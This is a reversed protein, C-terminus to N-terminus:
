YIGAPSTRKKVPTKPAKRASLCMTDLRAMVDMLQDYVGKAYNGGMPIEGKQVSNNSWLTNPFGNGGGALGV